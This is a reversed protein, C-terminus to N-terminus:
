DPVPWYYTRIQLKAKIYFMSMLNWCAMFIMGSLASGILGYRPILVACMIVNIVTSISVINRFVNQRGTMILFQGVSGAFINFLQGAMTIVLATTGAIFESGFLSLLWHRFLIIGVFIPISTYFIVMATQAVYKKLGDTDGTAHLRAFRPASISNISSLVFTSFTAIKLIVSYVGVDSETSFIGLMIINVWGSILLMSNALLMPLASEIMEKISLENSADPSNKRIKKVIRFSSTIALVTLSLALCINPLWPHKLLVSFIGLLVSAYLFYGVNQSYAYERNMRFGRYCESNIFRLIMPVVAFSIIKLYTELAPKKFIYAAIFSSTFFLLVSLFMGVPITVKLTKYYVELMRDWRNDPHDKAFHKVLALDMGLRGAVTFMMLVTVSLTHAGLVESGYLRSIIFVFAYGAVLGILRIIFTSGSDTIIQKLNKDNLQKQLIFKIKDIM